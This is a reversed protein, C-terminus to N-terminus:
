YSSGGNATPLTYPYRGQKKLYRLRAGLYGKKETKWVMWHEGNLRRRSIVWGDAYAQASSYRPLYKDAIKVCQGFQMRELIDRPGGETKRGLMGHYRSQLPLPIGSLIKGVPAKTIIDTVEQSNYPLEFLM